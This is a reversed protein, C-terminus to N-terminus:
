QWMTNNYYPATCPVWIWINPYQIFLYFMKQLGSCLVLLQCVTKDYLRQLKKRQTSLRETLDLEKYDKPSYGMLSRQGHSKELCSYHLPNGNGEEPSRGLGPILGSDRTDGANCTTKHVGINYGQALLLWEM